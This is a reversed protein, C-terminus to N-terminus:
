LLAYPHKAVFVTVTIAFAAVMPPGVCTHRPLVMVIVLSLATVHLLAFVATAVMLEAVPTTPPMVAPVAVIIAFRMLVPQERAITTVTFGNGVIDPVSATQTPDVIVGVPALPPPVHILWVGDIAVTPLVLPTTVPM